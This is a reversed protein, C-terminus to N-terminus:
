EFLDEATSENSEAKLRIRKDNIFRAKVEKKVLPMTMFEKITTRKSAEKFHNLILAQQQKLDRKFATGLTAM